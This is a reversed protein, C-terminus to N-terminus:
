AWFGIEQAKSVLERKLWGDDDDLFSWPTKGQARTERVYSRFRYHAYVAMVHSAYAAALAKHGRVIVFNEDNDASAPASFNHSGTVVVPNDGLADIVRDHM